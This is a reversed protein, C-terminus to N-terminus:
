KLFITTPGAESENTRLKNRAKLWEAYLDNSDPFEDYQNSIKIGRGGSKVLKILWVIGSETLGEKNDIKFYKGKELLSKIIITILGKIRNKPDKNKLTLNEVRILTYCKNVMPLLVGIYAMLHKNHDVIVFMDKIQFIKHGNAIAVPKKGDIYTPNWLIEPIEDAVDLEKLIEKIKM